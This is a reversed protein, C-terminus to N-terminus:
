KECVYRDPLGVQGLFSTFRQQLHDRYPSKLYCRRRAGTENNSLVALLYATDIAFVSKFDVVLQPLGQEERDLRSPVSALLQFRPEKTSQLNKIEKRDMYEDEAVIDSTYAAVVLVTELLKKRKPEEKERERFDKDLDCAQSVTILYPHRVMRIAPRVEGGKITSASFIATARAVGTIIEGQLLPGSNPSCAWLADRDPEESAVDIAPPPPTAVTGSNSAATSRETHAAKADSATM